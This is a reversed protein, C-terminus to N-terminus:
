VAYFRRAVDATHGRKKAKEELPKLKKTIERYEDGEYYKVQFNRIERISLGVTNLRDYIQKKSLNMLRDGNSLSQHKIYKVVLKNLATPVKFTVIKGNKNSKHERLVITRTKTDYYNGEPQKGLVISPLDNRSAPFDQDILPYLVFVILFDDQNKTEEFKSLYIQYLSKYTDMEKQLQERTEGKDEKESVLSQVNLGLNGLDKVYDNSSGDTKSFYLLAYILSKRVSVSKPNLYDVLVDYPILNEISDTLPYELSLDKAIRKM